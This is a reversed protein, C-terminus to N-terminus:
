HTTNIPMPLPSNLTTHHMPRNPFHCAKGCSSRLCRFRFTNSPSLTDLNRNECSLLVHIARKFYGLTRPILGSRTCWKPGSIPLPHKGRSERFEHHYVRTPTNLVCTACLNSPLVASSDALLSSYSVCPKDLYFCCKPAWFPSYVTAVM